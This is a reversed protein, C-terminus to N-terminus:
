RNQLLVLAARLLEQASGDAGAAGADSVAQVAANEAWGLGVLASLVQDVFESASGTVVHQAPAEGVALAFRELKGTLSVVIMKASKPGIGSVRTFPKADETQVAQVIEAPTLLSLVGLASRPGVGNVQLLLNFMELTETDLFGYLTQSDERVVLQTHLKANEGQHCAAAVSTPTEVRYGLGNTELVVWDAGRAAVEGSVSVIVYGFYRGFLIKAHM